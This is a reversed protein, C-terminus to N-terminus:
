FISKGISPLAIIKAGKLSNLKEFLLNHGKDDLGTLPEDLIAVKPHNALAATLAVRRKEGGSLSSMQRELFPKLKISVDNCGAIRLVERVKLSLFTNNQAQFLSVGLIAREWPTLTAISKGLLKINGQSIPIVGAIAELLTTKGWGNPAQLISLEGEYLSFSLGEIRKNVSRGIVLRNNRKVVLDEVELVPLKKDQASHVIRTIKAEGPLNQYKKESKSGAIKNIWTKINSEFYKIKENRIESPNMVVLYGNELAWVKTTYDMLKHFNLVHEVIVVTLKKERVLRVLLELVQDIGKSDLSAFPEDLFLIRAGAQVARAIAVRKAQGLSIRDASSTGRGDLGLSNLIVTARQRNLIEQEQVKRRQLLALIPNEGKQKPTAVTINNILNQTDFLRIEQWTKGVRERAFREPSFHDFPSIRKWASRPFNYNESIGNAYLEIAGRDPELNGTLINLLTTKGSGNEGYLLYLEGQRLELSINELVTHGGFSKNIDTARLLVPTNKGQRYNNNQRKDLKNM